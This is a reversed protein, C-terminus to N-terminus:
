LQFRPLKHKRIIYSSFLPLRIIDEDRNDDIKPAIYIDNAAKMITDIAIRIERVRSQLPFGCQPCALAADSCPRTCEPCPQLAM